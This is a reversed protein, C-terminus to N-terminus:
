KAGVFFHNQAPIVNETTIGLEQAAHFPWYPNRLLERALLAIDAQGSAIIEEAQKAETITGVAMTMIDAGDRINRSSALQEAIRNGMSSRSDPNGGGSSCDVIDVGVEKLWKAM